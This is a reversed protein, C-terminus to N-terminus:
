DKTGVLAGCCPGCATGVANCLDGSPSSTASCARKQCLSPIISLHDGPNLITDRNSFPLCHLTAENASDARGPRASGSSNAVFRSLTTEAAHRGVPSNGVGFGSQHIRQFCAIRRPGARRRVGSAGSDQSLATFDSLCFAEKCQSAEYMLRETSQFQSGMMCVTDTASTLVEGMTTVPVRM